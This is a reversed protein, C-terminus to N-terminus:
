ASLSQPPPITASPTPAAAAPTTLSTVLAAQVAPAATVPPTEVISTTELPTAAAPPTPRLPAPATVTPTVTVESVLQAAGEAMDAFSSGLMVEAAGTGGEVEPSPHSQSIWLGTGHLGLAKLACLSLFLRSARIM